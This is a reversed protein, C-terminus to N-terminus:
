DPTKPRVQLAMAAQIVGRIPPMSEACSSLTAKLDALNTIDCAPTYVQVGMTELEQIFAVSTESKPGSRSLLVIHRAGRQAFWNAASRGLGVLGGAILYSKDTSFHCDPTTRLITQINPYAM